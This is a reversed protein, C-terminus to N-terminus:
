QSSDYINQIVQLNYEANVGLTGAAIFNDKAKDFDNLYCSLIGMNNLIKGNNDSILSAQYLFCEASELDYLNIASIAANNFARWDRDIHIFAQYFIKM